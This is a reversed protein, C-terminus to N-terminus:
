SSAALAATSRIALATRRRIFQRFYDIREPRVFGPLMLVWTKELDSLFREAEDLDSTRILVHRALPLHGSGAGIPEM